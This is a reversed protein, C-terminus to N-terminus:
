CSEELEFMQKKFDVFLNDLFIKKTLYNEIYKLFKIIKMSIKKNEFNKVYINKLKFVLIKFFDM